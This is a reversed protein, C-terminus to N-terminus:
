AITDISFIRKKPFNKLSKEVLAITFELHNLEALQSESPQINLLVQDNIIDVALCNIRAQLAKKRSQLQNWNNM